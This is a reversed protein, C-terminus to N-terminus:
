EVVKVTYERVAETQKKYNANRAVFTATYTGVKNYTHAYTNLDDTMNKIGVGSDPTCANIVLKDSVLWSYMLPTKAATSHIFFNNMNVLNWMGCTNNTVTAYPKGELVNKRSPSVNANVVDPHRYYMNLATFGFSKADITIVQGNKMVNRIQLNKFYFKSQVATNTVGKYCFGLTIDKNLYPTMDVPTNVGANFNAVQPVGPDDKSPAKDILTQWDASEVAVSDAEFDEKTLGKFDEAIFVSLIDKPNGYQAEITVTLESSEIDEMAVTTRERNRYEAGIEGSYFTLFDPDGDILFNVPTGKKVTITQQGDFSVADSTEVGINLEADKVLENECATLALSAIGFTIMYKNIKM